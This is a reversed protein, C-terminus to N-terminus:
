VKVSLFRTSRIEAPIILDLDKTAMLAYEGQYVVNAVEEGDVDYVLTVLGCKRDCIHCDGQGGSHEIAADANRIRVIDGIKLVSGSAEKTYTSNESVYYDKVYITKNTKVDRLRYGDRESHGLVVGVRGANKGSIVRLETGKAFM